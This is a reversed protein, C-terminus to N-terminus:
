LLILLDAVLALAFFAHTYGAVSDGALLRVALFLAAAGPPYQWTPDTGPIAGTLLTDSWRRYLEVDDFVGGVGPGEIVRAYILVFLTRTVVWTTLVPFTRSGLWTM